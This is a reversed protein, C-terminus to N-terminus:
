HHGWQRTGGRHDAGLILLLHQAARYSAMCHLFVAEHDLAGIPRFDRDLNSIRLYAISEGTRHIIALQLALLGSIIDSRLTVLATHDKTGSLTNTPYFEVFALFGKDWAIATKPGKNVQVAHHAGSTKGVSSVVM